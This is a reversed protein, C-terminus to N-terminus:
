LTARVASLIERERPPLNHSQELWHLLHWAASQADNKGKVWWGIAELERHEARTPTHQQAPALIQCRHRTAMWRAVMNIGIADYAHTQPLDPRITYAEWLIALSPGWARCTEGINDAAELPPYEDAYFSTGHGWLCALGTMGGGDIAMVNAPIM